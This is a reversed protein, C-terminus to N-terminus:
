LFVHWKPRKWSRRFTDVSAKVAIGRKEQGDLFVVLDFQQAATGFESDFQRAITNAPIVTRGAMEQLSLRVGHFNESPEYAKYVLETCVLSSDTQFDFNFDYSRGSYRFARRLAQAKEVRTTRPRLVAVADAAASHEISTFSVGESIAELVRTQHHHEQPKLSIAYIAESDRRLLADFDGSAEGQAMVWRRVEPDNFYARRQEPTAIYLAAHSWFGPLGVNSVYWERRQLMVDGPELQAQLDQIQAASILTKDQRLVKTDGMWESVGAQIPFVLQMGTNKLVNGANALTLAEGKGKGAQWIYAADNATAQVLVSDSLKPLTNAIINYAAFETAIAVNLFRFKFKDYSKAALGLSPVPDNLLIALKPDHEVLEIFELAFRYQALFASHAIHFSRIQAATMPLVYGEKHFRRISDLLLYYDLLSSWIDRVTDRESETLLHSSQPKTTPFLDSRSQVYGVLHSIGDRYIKVAQIDAAQRQEREPTSLKIATVAAATKISVMVLLLVFFIKKM